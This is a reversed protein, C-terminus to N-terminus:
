RLLARSLGKSARLGKNKGAKGSRIEVYSGRKGDKGRSWLHENYCNQSGLKNGANRFGCGYGMSERGLENDGPSRM